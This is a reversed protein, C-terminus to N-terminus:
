YRGLFNDINKHESVQQLKRPMRRKLRQYVTLYLVDEFAVRKVALQLIM